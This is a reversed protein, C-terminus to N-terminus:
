GKVQRWLAYGGGLFTAAGTIMAGGFTLNSRSTELSGIREGLSVMRDSHDKLKQDVKEATEHIGDVKGAIYGLKELIQAENSM